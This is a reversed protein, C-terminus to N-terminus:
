VNEMKVSTEQRSIRGWKLKNKRYLFFAEIRYINVLQRFGFNEIFSYIVVKIFEKISIEYNETYIRNCFTTITFMTCFMIYTALYLLMFKINILELFYAIFIFILGIMETIPAILEYVWYYPLSLCGLGKYRPNLLMNSHSTLSQFLGTHWRRRQKKFDRLTSPAQTYCIADTVYKIRYKYKNTISYDHLRIVLEMDEGVTDKKYGGIEIVKQKNFLGFAGSIILNGNFLDFVTRGAQFTRDYELTQLMELHNKPLEQRIVKGNRFSLGNSLKIVGGVAITNTDEIVPKIIETLSNKDLVTDADITLFYPFSAANIGANLADAKGGNEKAILTIKVQQKGEYYAHVEKTQIEKRVIKKVAKLHYYDIVKQLTNDTSGDDVIIIEYLRYDLKLLSNITSLIVVDENYAPIIISIPLYYEREIKNNYKKRREQLYFIFVGILASIFLFSGYIINYYLFFDNIALTLRRLFEM